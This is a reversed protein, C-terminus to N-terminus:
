KADGLKMLEELKQRNIEPEPWKRKLGLTRRRNQISDASRTVLVQTVDLDNFNSEIMRKLIEDEEKTWPIGSM